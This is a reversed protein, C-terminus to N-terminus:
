CTHKGVELDTPSAIFYRTYALLFDVHCSHIDNLHLVTLNTTGSIGQTCFVFLLMLM